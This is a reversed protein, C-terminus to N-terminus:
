VQVEAGESPADQREKTSKRPQQEKKCEGCLNDRWEWPELKAFCEICLTTM